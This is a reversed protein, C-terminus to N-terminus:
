DSCRLDWLCDRPLAAQAAADGVHHLARAPGGAGVVALARNPVALDTQHREGFLVPWKGDKGLTHRPTDALLVALKQLYEDDEVLIKDKTLDLTVNPVDVFM